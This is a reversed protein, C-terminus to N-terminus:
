VERYSPDQLQHTWVLLGSAGMELYEEDSTDMSLVDDRLDRFLNSIHEVFSLTCINIVMHLCFGNAFPSDGFANKPPGIGRHLRPTGTHM